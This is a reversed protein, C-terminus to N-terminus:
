HDVNKLYEELEEYSLLKGNVQFKGFDIKKLPIRNKGIYAIQGVKLKSDLYYAAM